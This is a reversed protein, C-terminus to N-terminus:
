TAAPRILAPDAAGPPRLERGPDPAAGAPRTLALTATSRRQAQARSTSARTTARGPEAGLLEVDEAAVYTRGSGGGPGPETTVVVDVRSGAPDRGTAALAEAGTVSIQVPERGGRWRTAGALPPACASRALQAALCTPAPRSRAGGARPRDGAGAASLAGAPVFRAPMRRVELLRDADAPRLARRAPIPERAVVAPRLPGLQSELDTRYGGAVAAALGACALAACGFGIARARRSVRRARGAARRGAIRDATLAPRRGRAPSGRPPPSPRQPALPLELIATTGTPGTRLLFRGGHEAAIASVIRLGHGHRPDGARAAPRRAPGSDAVSIRM